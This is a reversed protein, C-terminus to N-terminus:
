SNKLLKFQSRIELSRLRKVRKLRKKHWDSYLQIPFNYVISKDTSTNLVGEELPCLGCSHVETTDWCLHKIRAAVCENYANIKIHSQILDGSMKENNKTLKDKAVVDVVFETRSLKEIEDCDLNIKLLTNLRGSIVSLAAKCDSIKSFSAEKMRTLISRNHKEIWSNSLDGM